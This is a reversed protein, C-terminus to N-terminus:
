ATMKPKRSRKMWLNMALSLYHVFAQCMIEVDVMLMVSSPVLVQMNQFVVVVFSSICRYSVGRKLYTIAKKKNTRTLNWNSKQNWGYGVLLIFLLQSFAEENTSPWSGCCPEHCGKTFVHWTCPMARDVDLQEV